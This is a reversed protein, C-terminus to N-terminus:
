EKLYKKALRVVGGVLLTKLTEKILGSEIPEFDDSILEEYASDNIDSIEDLMNEDIEITDACTQPIEYYSDGVQLQISGDLTETLSLNQDELEPLKSLLDLVGACTFVLEDQM